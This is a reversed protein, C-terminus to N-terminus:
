GRRRSVEGLLQITSTVRESTQTTSSFALDEFADRARRITEVRSPMIEAVSDFVLGPPMSAQYRLGQQEGFRIFRGYARLLRNRTRRNVTQMGSDREIMRRRTERRVQSGVVPDSSRRFITAISQIFARVGRALRALLRLQRLETRGEATLLPRVLFFLILAGAAVLISIGIVRVVGSLDVSEAVEIPLETPADPAIEDVVSETPQRIPASTIEGVDPEPILSRIWDLLRSIIGVDIPRTLLATGVAVLGALAVLGAEQVATRDAADRVLGEAHHRQEVSLRAAVVAALTFSLAGAVFLSAGASDPPLLVPLAVAVASLAVSRNRFRNMDIQASIAESHLERTRAQRDQTRSGSVLRLFLFHSHLRSHTALTGLWSVAVVSVSVYTGVALVPSEADGSIAVLLLVLGFALATVILFERLKRFADTRRQERNVSDLFCHGLSMVAAIVLTGPAVLRGFADIYADLVSVLTYSALVAPMASAISVGLDRLPQGTVAHDSDATLSSVPYRRRSPQYRWSSSGM